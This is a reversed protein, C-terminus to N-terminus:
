KSFEFRKQKAIMAKVTDLASLFITLQLTGPIYIYYNCSFKKADTNVYHLNFM